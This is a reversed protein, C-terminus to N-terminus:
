GGTAEVRDAPISVRMLGRFDGVAYDTALDDPYREDLIAQVAPDIEESTGHCKLCPPAVSLSQYYRYEGRGVKQVWVGPLEGTEALETEFHRLAEAEPQDPANAPNRYRTTTRKIELGQDAEVGATLEVASTSCFEIASAPGGQQMAGTLNTILTGKLANAAAAGAEVVQAEVAPSMKDGEGGTCACMALAVLTVLTGRSMQNM